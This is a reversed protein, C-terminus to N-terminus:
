HGTFHLESHHTCTTLLDLIWDMGRRYDCVRLDHCYNFEKTSLALLPLMNSVRVNENLNDKSFGCLCPSIKNFIQPRALAYVSRIVQLVYLTRNEKRQAVYEYSFTM